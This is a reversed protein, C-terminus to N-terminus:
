QDSTSQQTTMYPRPTSMLPRWISASVVRASQDEQGCLAEDYGPPRALYDSSLGLAHACPRLCAPSISRQWPPHVGIDSM